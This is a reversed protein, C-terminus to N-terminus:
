GFAQIKYHQEPYDRALQDARACFSHENNFVRKHLIKKAMLQNLMKEVDALQPRYLFSVRGSLVRTVEMASWWRVDRSLLNTIERRLFAAERRSDIAFVLLGAILLVCATGVFGQSLALLGGFCFGPIFLRM